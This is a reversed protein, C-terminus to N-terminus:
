RMELLADPSVEAATTAKDSGEATAMPLDGSLKLWRKGQRYVVECEGNAPPCYITHGGVTIVVGGDADVRARCKPNGTCSALADRGNMAHATTTFSTTGVIVALITVIKLM